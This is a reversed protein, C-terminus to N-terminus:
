QCNWHDQLHQHLGKKSNHVNKKNGLHFTAALVGGVALAYAIAFFVFAVGGTVDPMGFGLFALLGFGLGSLTTFVIVSPAPHM